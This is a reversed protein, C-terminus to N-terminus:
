LGPDHCVGDVAARLDDVNARAPDVLREVLVPDHEDCAELADRGVEVDGRQAAAAGVRGRDGERCGEACADALDVGVDLADEGGVRL